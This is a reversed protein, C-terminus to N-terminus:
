CRGYRTIHEFLSCGMLPQRAQGSLRMGLARPLWTAAKKNNPQNKKKKKKLFFLVPRNSSHNHPTNPFQQTAPRAMLHIIKLRYRPRETSGLTCPSAKTEPRAAQPCGRPGAESWVPGKHEGFHLVGKPEAGVTSLWTHSCAKAREGLAESGLNGSFVWLM